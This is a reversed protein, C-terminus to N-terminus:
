DLWSIEDFSAISSSAANEPLRRKETLTLQAYCEIV